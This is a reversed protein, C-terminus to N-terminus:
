GGSIQRRISRLVRELSLSGMKDLKQQEKRRRDYSKFWLDVHSPWVTWRGDDKHCNETVCLEDRLEVAEQRYERRTLDVYLVPYLVMTKLYSGFRAMVLEATELVQPCPSLIVQDFLFPAAALDFAKCTLRLTRLDPTQLWECILSQLEGPIEM